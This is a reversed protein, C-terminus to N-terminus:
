PGTCPTNIAPQDLNKELQGFKLAFKFQNNFDFMTPRQSRRTEAYKMQDRMVQSIALDDEESNDESSVTMSKRPSKRSDKSIPQSLVSNERISSNKCSPNPNDINLEKAIEPQGQSVHLHIESSPREPGADDLLQHDQHIELSECRSPPAM